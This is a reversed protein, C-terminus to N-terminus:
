FIDYYFENKNKNVVLKILIIVNHFTLIKEIPLSNNSDIRIKEFKRNFSDTIGSKESILYKDCIKDFLRNDFLVLHRFEGGRVRIFGDTKDLRVRLPKPGTSTKYSISYILINKYTEYLKQDLSIDVFYVDKDKIIDCFYYCACNKIDTQKLEDKSEM